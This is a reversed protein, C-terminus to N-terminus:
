ILNFLDNGQVNILEEPTGFSLHFDTTLSIFKGGRSAGSNIVGSMFFEKYNCEKLYFQCLEEFYNFNKFFYAGCIAKNSIVEKEVTKLIIGNKEFVYSYAANNSFFTLVAGEIDNQYNSIFKKFDFSYFYHDCDNFLIPLNNKIVSKANLATLVPGNLMEAIIVINASPYLKKIEQTISFNKEHEELVIFTLSEIDCFKRISETAYYFFPKNNIKILPKPLNFGHKAFRSGGGGM